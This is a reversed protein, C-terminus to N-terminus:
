RGAELGDIASGTRADLSQGSVLQVSVNRGDARSFTVTSGAAIDPTKRVRGVVVADDTVVVALKGGHLQQTGRYEGSVAEGAPLEVVPRDYKQALKSAVEDREQRALRRLADAQLAVKGDATVNVFGSSTLWERRHQIAEEVAPHGNLRPDPRDGFAQRDLWTVARAQIQEALTHADITRVDTRGSRGHGPQSFKEFTEADVAYKGEDLARVGSGEHGAVFGLRSEASRVISAAQQENAGDASARLASQHAAAASYIGRNAKAVSVIQEAVERQREAGAGLEALSGIQSERYSEGDRVRAYHSRGASDRVVVFRDEGIEDVSGRAIVIGSVPKSPIAGANM